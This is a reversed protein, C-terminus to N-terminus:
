AAEEAKRQRQEEARQEALYEGVRQRCLGTQEDARRRASDRATHLAQCSLKTCGASGAPEQPAGQLCADHQASLGSTEEQFSQRLDDCEAYSKPAYPSGLTLWRTSPVLDGFGAEAARSSTLALVTLGAVCLKRKM